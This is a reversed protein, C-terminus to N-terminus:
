PVSQILNSPKWGMTVDTEGTDPDTETMTVSFGERKYFEMARRNKEYVNLTLFPHITKVHGLLKKGIGSSRAEKKVFIGAIYDEQLGIFGQVAGQDEYVYVEAQLLQEQVMSLNSQWYAAPIFPHADMNGHLWLDMVQSTDTNQFTRIM